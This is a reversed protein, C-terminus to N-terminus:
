CCFIRELLRTNFLSNLYMCLPIKIKINRVTSENIKPSAKIKALKMNKLFHIKLQNGVQLPMANRVHNKDGAGFSIRRSTNNQDEYWAAAVTEATDRKPSLIETM